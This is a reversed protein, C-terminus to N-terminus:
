DPRILYSSLPFSEVQRSRSHRGLEGATAVQPSIAFVQVVSSAKCVRHWLAM